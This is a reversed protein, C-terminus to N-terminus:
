AITKSPVKPFTRVFFDLRGYYGVATRALSGVLRLRRQRNPKSIINGSILDIHLGSRSLLQKGGSGAQQSIRISAFIPGLPSSPASIKENQTMVGLCNSLSPSGRQPFPSKITSDNEQISTSLLNVLSREWQAPIVQSSTAIFNFRM